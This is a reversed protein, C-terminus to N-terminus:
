MYNSPPTKWVASSTRKNFRARKIKFIENLNPERLLVEAPFLSETDIEKNAQENLAVKLNVGSYYFGFKLYSFKWLKSFKWSVEPGVQSPNKRGPIM